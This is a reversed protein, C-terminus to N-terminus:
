EFAFWTAPDVPSDGERVEIYLSQSRRLDGGTVNGDAGPAQGGMLGIPTGAPLIDGPAGFVEELGAFVFLVDPSPEVVAVQGLDLLPGLYRITAAAPVTVMARPRTALIIGPRAIGAADAEDMRRLIEGRAPLPLSGKLSMADPAAVAEVVNQADRLGSAFADLTETSAILLAIQVPDSVYRRPLDTRNQLAEALRSRAKQAGALGEQLTEAAATQVQRLAKIEELTTQLAAVEGQLAPTVDALMMGSRATGTPGSPHLLLLPAPARGMVQLTGLLRGVEDRKAELETLITQERIAARRLGDRLAILGSEYARVTETLAAIRNRAGEAETLMVGAAELRAAAAEAVDAADTQAVAVPAALVASLLAAALARM